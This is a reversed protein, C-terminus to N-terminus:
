PREEPSAARKDGGFVRRFVALVAVPAAFLLSFGLVNGAFEILLLLATQIADTQGQRPGHAAPFFLSLVGGSNGHWLGGVEILIANVAGVIAGVAAAVLVPHVRWIRMGRKLM